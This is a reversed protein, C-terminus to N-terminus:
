CVQIIFYRKKGYQLLMYRNAILDQISIMFKDNIYKKNLLISNEHLARRAENKSHFLKMKEVLLDIISIKNKIEAINIKCYPSDSFLSLFKQDDIKSLINIMDDHFFKNSIYSIKQYKNKGHVLITVEKALTQQIMRKSPDHKHMKIIEEIEYKPLLTYMKILKEAQQDSINMWFQYFDYPKTKISNLWINQMNTTKGFKIGNSNTILPFTLGYVNKGTKRKILEIGTTINGWQDSGGIQLSCNYKENLYLFDYGQFLQYTFETFSIGDTITNILRTKVSEKAIMYNVTIFRGINMLFDFFSIKNLWDHNNLIKFSQEHNQFLDNIQKEIYQINNYLTTKYIINRKKTRYSPDGIQATVGGIIILVKHGYKQFHFLVIIAILNGIHLSDATPDFGIYLIIPGEKIYNEIGPTKDYLLGRWSLETM